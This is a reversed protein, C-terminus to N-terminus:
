IREDWKQLALDINRNDSNNKDSIYYISYIICGYTQSDLNEAKMINNEKSKNQFELFKKLTM